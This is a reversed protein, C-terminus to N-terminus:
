GAPRHRWLGALYLLAVIASFVPLVWAAVPAPFPVLIEYVAGILWFAAMGGGVLLVVRWPVDHWLAVAVSAVGGFVLLVGFFVTTAYLAWRVPEYLGEVHEAWPYVVPLVFHAAGNLASLVGATVLLASGRRRTTTADRQLVPSSTM